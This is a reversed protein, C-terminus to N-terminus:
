AAAPTAAAGNARRSPRGRRKRAAPAPPEPPPPTPQRHETGEMRTQRGRSPRTRSTSAPTVDPNERAFAERGNNLGRIWEVHLPSGAPYPADDPTSGSRGSRYGQEQAEWLSSESRSRDTLDADWGEFLLSQTMPINRLSMYRITERMDALVVDPDLRRALYTAIMAKTNIGAAKGRKVINRLVGNEEDCRRRQKDYERMIVVVEDNSATQDPQSNLSSSM